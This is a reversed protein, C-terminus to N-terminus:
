KPAFEFDLSASGGAAVTIKKTQEGLIPHWAHVEYEGAPIQDISFTGEKGVVAYYPSKVPYFHANMYNHQDCELKMVSGKREKRMKITVTMVQDKKPLPKNFMTSSSKGSIEYGHPNHLVGDASKPDDPDADMNTVNMKGKNKVVGVFTSGQQALFRCTDAHVETADFTFAKGEKIGKIAVVVDALLGDNVTVESLYRTGDKTDAKGCFESQPFKAIDFEKPAPPTGKFSIKGTLTGGNSVAAEKYVVKAAFAPAGLLGIAVAVVAASYTMKGAKM